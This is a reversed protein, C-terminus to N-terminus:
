TNYSTQYTAQEEKKEGDGGNKISIYSKITSKLIIDTFAIEWEM